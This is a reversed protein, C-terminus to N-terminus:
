GFSAPVPALRVDTCGEGMATEASPSVPIVEASWRAVSRERIFFDLRGLNIGGFGVQFIVTTGGGPRRVVVPERMFTHTHGGIIADIGEVQEALEVDGFEEKKQESPVGEKRPYYGLHSLCIVLVAEEKLKLTRVMARATQVPDLYIVGRRNSEVVLGDLAIGLGFIGVKVGALERVVYPKIRDRLITQRFDYNASVIDFTAFNIARALADLGGDFEHNGLTVVDYGIASMVRYDAEGHYFNYFPTGQFADGADVLLTHPNEQRIKRVLTARRAAGGLGGYRRDDPPFPELRSHTDNTHLITIQTETTQDRSGAQAMAAPRLGLALGAGTRLTQELFHRRSWGKM